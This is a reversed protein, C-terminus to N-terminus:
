KKLAIESVDVGIIDYGQDVLWDIDLTKGCLPVLVTANQEIELSPWYTKLPPFGTAYAM